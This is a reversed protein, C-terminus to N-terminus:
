MLGTSRSYTPLRSQEPQRQRAEIHELTSLLNDFDNPREVFWSFRTLQNCFTNLVLSIKEPLYNEFVAIAKSLALAIGDPVLQGTITTLTIAASILQEIKWNVGATYVGRKSSYEIYANLLRGLISAISFSTITPTASAFFLKPAYKIILASLAISATLILLHRPDISSQTLDFSLSTMTISLLFCDQENLDLYHAVLRAIITAPIVTRASLDATDKLFTRLPFRGRDLAYNGAFLSLCGAFSSIMTKTVQDGLFNRKIGGAHLVESVVGVCNRHNELAFLSSGTGRFKLPRNKLVHIKHVMKAINLGHIRHIKCERRGTVQHLDPNNEPDEYIYNDGDPSEFVGEGAPAAALVRGARMAAEFDRSKPFFSLYHHPAAYGNIFLQLSIHGKDGASCLSLFSPMPKKWIYIEAYNNETSM